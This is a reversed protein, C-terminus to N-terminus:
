VVKVVNASIFGEEPNSGYDCKYYQRDDWSWYVRSTDVRITDGAKVEGISMDLTDPDTPDKQISATKCNYVVMKEM